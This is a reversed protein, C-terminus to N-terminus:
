GKSLIERAIDETTRKVPRTSEVGAKTV